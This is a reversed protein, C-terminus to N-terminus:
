LPDPFYARWQLSTLNAPNASIQGVINAHLIRRDVSPRPVLIVVVRVNIPLFHALVSRLQEVMQRTISTDPLVQSVYLGVTARTYVDDDQLVEGGAPGRPKQPTYALLDYWLRHRSLRAADGPVLSTSGAFRRITGTDVIRMSHLPVATLSGATPQQSTVLNEVEPLPPTALRSLPVSRDSRYLLWLTNGPLLMPTPAHDAAADATIARPAGVVEGNPPRVTISWLDPGGARDSHFVV